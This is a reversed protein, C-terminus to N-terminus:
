SVLQGLQKLIQLVKYIDGLNRLSFIYSTGYIPQNQWILKIFMFEGGNTIMGYHPRNKNPNALLYSLLQPLGAELSYTVRKSEIVMVWLQDNIILTDIKGRIIIGEEENILEVPEEAKIHFPFLYFNGVFLLPDLVAMRVSTELFPAYNLLNFYGEQITDLQQKEFSSLPKLNDQWEFFFNPQNQWILGFHQQLERLTIEKEQIIQLM